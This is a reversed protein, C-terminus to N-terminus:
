SRGNEFEKIIPNIKSNDTAGIVRTILEDKGIGDPPLYDRVANVVGLLAERMAEIQDLLAPLASHMAVILDLNPSLSDPDRSVEEDIIGFGFDYSDVIQGRVIEDPTGSNTYYAQVAWPGPAAKALLERLRAVQEPSIPSPHETTMAM